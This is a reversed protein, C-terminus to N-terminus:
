IFHSHNKKRIIDKDLRLILILLIMIVKFSCFNVEKDLTQFLKCLAPIIHKKLLQYFLM